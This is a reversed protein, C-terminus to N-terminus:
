LWGKQEAINLAELHSRAGLKRIAVFGVPERVTLGDLLAGQQLMAGVRGAAVAQGPDGGFV